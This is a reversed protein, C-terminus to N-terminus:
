QDPRSHCVVPVEEQRSQGVSSTRHERSLQIQSEQPHQEEIRDPQVDRKPYTGLEKSNVQQM